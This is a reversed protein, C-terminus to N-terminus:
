RTKIIDKELDAELAEEATISKSEVANGELKNGVKILFKAVGPKAYNGFQKVKDVPLKLIKVIQEKKVEAREAAKTEFLGEIIRTDELDAAKPKKNEYFENVKTKANGLKEVIHEPALKIVKLIKAIKIQNLEAKAEKYEQKKIEFESKKNEFEVKQANAEEVEKIKEQEALIESRRAEAQKKVEELFDYKETQVQKEIEELVDHDSVAKETQKIIYDELNDSELVVESTNNLEETKTEKELVENLNAVTEETMVVTEEVKPVELLAKAEELEKAEARAIEEKIGNFAAKAFVAVKTLALKNKFSIMYVKVKSTENKKSLKNYLKEYKKIEKASLGTIDIISALGTKEKKNANNVTDIIVKPGVSSVISNPDLLGKVKVEKLAGLEKILENLDAIKNSLISKDENLLDQNLYDFETKKCIENVRNRLADRSAELDVLENLLKTKGSANLNNDALAIKDVNKMEEILADRKGKLRTREKYAKGLENLSDEDFEERLEEELELILDKNDALRDDLINLDAYNMREYLKAIAYDSNSIEEKLENIYLADEQAKDLDYYARNLLYNENDEETKQGISLKDDLDQIEKNLVDIQDILEKEKIDFFESTKEIAEAILKAQEESQTINVTEFIEKAEENM